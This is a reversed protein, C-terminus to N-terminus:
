NLSSDIQQVIDQFDGARSFDMSDRQITIVKNFLHQNKELFDHYLKNVPLAQNIIYDESNDFKRGGLKIFKRISKETVSLFIIVDPYDLTKRDVEAMDKLVDNEFGNSLADIFLQYGIWFVDLIITEGKEKYEQAVLYEKVLKNRFWLIRELPRINKEIDECIREPFDIEEGELIIKGNYHGALLGALFSKGSRPAGIVAIIKGSKNEM